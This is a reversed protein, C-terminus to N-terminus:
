EDEAKEEGEAGEGESEADEVPETEPFVVTAAVAEPDGKLTTGEPLKVDGLYITTGAELGTVDIEISEPINLLDAEVEIENFETMAITGPASEGAIRLAVNVDVKEGRRVSLLDVHRVFGKLVDRQVDKPLALKPEKGEIEISLLPNETRLALLTAHGELTVHIPEHDHSYMVAPVKGDRRIRRAAGKGFETREEAKLHIIDAM